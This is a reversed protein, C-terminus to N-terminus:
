DYPEPDTRALYAGREDEPLALCPGEVVLLVYDGQAPLESFTASLDGRTAALTRGGPREGATPEGFGAAGLVPGLRDLYPHTAAVGVDVRGTAAYRFTAYASESASECGVFRGTTASSRGGLADVAAAVLDAAVARVQSRQTELTSSASPDPVDDGPDQHTRGCATVLAVLLVWGALFRM